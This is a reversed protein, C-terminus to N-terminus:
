LLDKFAPLDSSEACRNAIITKFLNEGFVAPNKKQFHKTHSENGYAGVLLNMPKFNSKPLQDDAHFEQLYVKDDFPQELITRNQFYRNARELLNIQHKSLKFDPVDQKSMFTFVFAKRSRQHHQLWKGWQDKSHRDPILNPLQIKQTDSLSQLKHNVFNNKIDWDYNKWRFDFHDSLWFPTEGAEFDADISQSKLFFRFTNEALKGKFINQFRSEISQLNMRNITFPLSLAAYDLSNQYAKSLSSSDDLRFLIYDDTTM